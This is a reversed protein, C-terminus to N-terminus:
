SRGAIRLVRDRGGRVYRLESDGIASVQGGDFRDGVQLRVVQGNGMRVLARRSSPAGFVGILNAERTRIARRETASQQVSASSPISPAAAAATAQPAPAAAPAAAATATAAPRRREAELAAQVRASLAQPRASPLLSRAVAEPATEDVPDPELASPDPVLDTPRRQPRLLALDIGGPPPAIAPEASSEPGAAALAGPLPAAAPAVFAVPRALPAATGAIAPGLDPMLSGQDLRGPQEVQAGDDDEAPPDPQVARRAEGLARVRASRAEPRVGALAPDARPTDDALVPEPAPAPEPEAETVAETVAEPAPEPESVQAAATEPPAPQIVPPPPGIRAPRVTPVAVPRGPTVTITVDEESSPDIETGAQEGVPAPEPEPVVPAPAAIGALVADFAPPPSLSVPRVEDVPPVTLRGPMALRTVQPAPATQDAPTGSAATETAAAGTEAGSAVDDNAPGNLAVPGAASEPAGASDPQAVSPDTAGLSELQEAQQPDSLAERVLAELMADPDTTETGDVTATQAPTEQPAATETVTEAVAEPATAGEPPAPEAATETQPPAIPAAPVQAPAAIEAQTGAAAAPDDVVANGQALGAPAPAPRNFYLAWVAVAVLVLMLAGLGMLARAPLLPEPQTMGRRGFVTLAEAETLNTREAPTGRAAGGSAAAGAIAPDTLGRGAQPATAPISRPGGSPVARASAAPLAAGTPGRGLLRRATTLLGLRGLASRAMDRSRRGLGRTMGAGAGAGGRNLIALRGGPAGSSAPKPGSAAPPQATRRSSFALVAGEPRPQTAPERPADEPPDDPYPQAAASLAAAGGGSRLSDNPLQRPVSASAMVSSRSAGDASAAGTGGLAGSGRSVASAGTGAQERRIATGMRRVLGGLLNTGGQLASQGSGADPKVSAAPTAVKDKGPGPSRAPPAATAPATSRAPPEGSQVPAPGATAASAAPTAAAPTAAPAAAAPAPAAPAKAQERAPGTGPEPVKGMVRVAVSDPQVMAGEPLLGRVMATQGFFPEGLFQGDGPQAVFSVPNFGREAAFEEAERLTERAVIAVQAHDGEVSWDYALETLPYPTLGEIGAEIQYRRAEDTPGPALVSAFRVESDPVILKTTIGEPALARARQILAEIAADLDPRDFKVSGVSLWGGAGRQLLEVADYSLSLAFNPKM